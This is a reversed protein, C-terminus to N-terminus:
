SVGSKCCNASANFTGRLLSAGMPFLYDVISSTMQGKVIRVYLHVNPHVYAKFRLLPNLLLM